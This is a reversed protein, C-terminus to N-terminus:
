IHVCEAEEERLAITTGRISFAKPGRFPGQAVLSIRSGPTFGLEQLQLRIEDPGSVATIVAEIGKKLTAISM